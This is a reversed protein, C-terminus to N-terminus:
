EIPKPVNNFKYLKPAKKKHLPAKSGKVIKKLLGTPPRLGLDQASGEKKIHIYAKYSNWSELNLM